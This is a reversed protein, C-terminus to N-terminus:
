VIGIICIIFPLWLLTNDSGPGATAVLNYQIIKCLVSIVIHLHITTNKCWNNDDKPDQEQYTQSRTFSRYGWPDQM